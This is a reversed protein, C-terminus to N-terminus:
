IYFHIYGWITPPGFPLNAFKLGIEHRLHFILFILPTMQFNVFSAQQGILRWLFMLILLCPCFMCVFCFRRRDVDFILEMKNWKPKKKKLYVVWGGGGGGGCRLVDTENTTAVKSNRALSSKHDGPQSAPSAGTAPWNKPSDNQSHLAIVIVNVAISIM